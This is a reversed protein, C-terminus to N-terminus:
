FSCNQILAILHMSTSKLHNKIPYHKTKCHTIIELFIDLKRWYLKTYNPAFEPSLISIM